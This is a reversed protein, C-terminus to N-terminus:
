HPLVAQGGLQTSLSRETSPQLYKAIEKFEQIAVLRKSIEPHTKTRTNTLSRVRLGDQSIPYTRSLMAEFDIDGCVVEYSTTHLPAFHVTM